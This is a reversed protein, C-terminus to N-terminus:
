LQMLSTWSFTQISHLSQLISPPKLREILSISYVHKIQKTKTVFCPNVKISVCVSNCSRTLHIDIHPVHFIWVDVFFQHITYTTKCAALQGMKESVVTSLSTYWSITVWNMETNSPSSHRQQSWCSPAVQWVEWSIISKKFSYKSLQRIELPKYCWMSKKRQSRGFPCSYFILWWKRSSSLALML